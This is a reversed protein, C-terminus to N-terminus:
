LKTEHFQDGFCEDNRRRRIMIAGYAGLLLYYAMVIIHFSFGSAIATEVSLGLAIFGIAWVGEHTGFGAIGHIPVITALLSFTTGLTVALIGLEIGMANLLMFAMVYNAIWVSASIAFCRLGFRFSRIVYFGETIERNKELLFRVARYQSIRLSTAFRDVADAFEDGLRSVAVLIFIAGIMLLFSITAASIMVPPPSSFALTATIFIAAIAIMDFLRAITLTALGESTPIKHLRRALYVYSLEGTRVPSVSNIMNHMCVTPYLDRTTVKDQLLMRFRLTRFYYGFAYLGLGALAWLPHISTLTSVITKPDVFILLVAVLAATIVAALIARKLNKM